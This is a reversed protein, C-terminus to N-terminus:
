AANTRSVQARALPLLQEGVRYAEELHPNASLVFHEIGARAYDAILAALQEYGGVLGTGGGPRVQAFGSWLHSDVVFEDFLHDERGALPAVGDISVAVANAKRWRQRLDRWAEEDSHRAVVDAQIGYRLKRGRAAALADLRAIRERIGAVPELPFLHVDAHKASLALAEDTEGSLVIVPLKQGSLAASFGGNEVEFFRGHYTFPKGHWFGKVVDLFEDTRAIQETLSWRHGHWNKDGPAENVLHWALRGGSLRQFSVAIKAAYVASLFPAPLAPLLRLRRAERALAGAVIWPEEGAATQPIFVGSFGTLEAARAIQALHDYYTYGDRRADTRAFSNRLATYDGRNWQENGIGRGDGGAPLTWFFEISM